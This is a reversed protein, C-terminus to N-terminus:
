KLSELSAAEDQPFGAVELEFARPIDDAQVLSYELAM